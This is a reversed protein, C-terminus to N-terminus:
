KGICFSDFVEDLIQETTVTGILQEVLGLARRVDEAALEPPGNPSAELLVRQASDLAARHRGAIAVAGGLDAIGTNAVAAVHERLANFGEGSTCSLRFWGDEPELDPDMDAKSRVKIATQGEAVGFPAEKELSDCAWLLIIFDAAAAAGVARRHGEAEVVDGTERLGATDQVILRIGNVELEAELVDRTTGPQPSVIAREDGCLKNFLTSKGANPPGIIVVRLGDRIKEGAAATELLEAMRGLSRDRQAVIEAGAVEVAQAEYDLSAELLGLLAVLDDRLAGFDKSLVGDMQQRANRLQASTEAEVVDRIAEAQLLDFKGNAVARRTFEGAEARRAGAALCSAIVSEVLFPSGHV